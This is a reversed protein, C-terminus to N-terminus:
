VTSQAGCKTLNPFPQDIIDDSLGRMLYAELLTLTLAISEAHAQRLPLINGEKYAEVLRHPLRVLSAVECSTMKLFECLRAFRSWDWREVLMLNMYHIDIMLSSPTQGRSDQNALTPVYMVKKKWAM